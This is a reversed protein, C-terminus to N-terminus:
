TKSAESASFASTEFRDSRAAAEVLAEALTNLHAFLRNFAAAPMTDPEDSIFTLRGECAELTAYRTLVSIESDDYLARIAQRVADNMWGSPLTGQERISFRTGFDDSVGIRTTSADSKAPRHNPRNRLLLNVLWGGVRGLTRMQLDHYEWRKTLPTSVSLKWVSSSSRGTSRSVLAQRMAFARKDSTIEFRSDFEDIQTVTAGLESALKEFRRPHKRNDIRGLFWFLFFLLAVGCFVLVDLDDFPSSERSFM